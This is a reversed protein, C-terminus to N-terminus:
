KIEETIAPEVSGDPKVRAVITIKSDINRVKILEGVKGDQQELVTMQIVYSGGEIKMVVPSNRRIVTKPKIRRLITPGIEADKKVARSTCMAYPNDIPNSSNLTVTEVFRVNSPTLGGGAPIDRTAIIIRTAYGPRYNVKAVAPQDKGAMVVV